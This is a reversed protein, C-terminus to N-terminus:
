LTLMVNAITGSSGGTFNSTSNTALTISTIASAGNWSGAGQISFTNASSTIGVAVKSIYSIGKLAATSRFFPIDIISQGNGASGGLYGSIMSSASAGQSNAAVGSVTWGSYEWEYHAAADANFTMNIFDTAGASATSGAMTLRIHNFYPTLVTPLTVSASNVSNLVFTNSLVTSSLPAWTGPSGGATCYWSLSYVTDVAVDGTVFTGTTPPGGGTAGVMRTPNAAGTIGSAGLTTEVLTGTGSWAGAGMAQAGSFTATAVAPSTLTKNTLTDTTARGVLTDPGAPLTITGGSGTIQPVTISPNTLTKNSLTQADTTGVVAGTVGHVGTSADIHTRAERFDRGIDAHTFTQNIPQTFAATGDIGRTCSTITSGSVTLVDIPEQLSTGIGFVATFPPTPWSSLSAVAFNTTSNSIGATLTTQPVNTGYQQGTPM